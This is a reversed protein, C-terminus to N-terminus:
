DLVLSFLCISIISIIFIISVNSVISVINRGEGVNSRCVLIRKTEIENREHDDKWGSSRKERKRELITFSSIIIQWDILSKVSFIFLYHLLVLVLLLVAVM